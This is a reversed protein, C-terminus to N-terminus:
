QSGAFCDRRKRDALASCGLDSRAKTKDNRACRPLREEAQKGDGSLRSRWTGRSSLIGQSAIERKDTQWGRVVSIAEHRQRTMALRRLLREKPQKGARFLRSRKTGRSSLSALTAHNKTDVGGKPPQSGAFCDRRKIDALGSCGLDSRAKTKDNRAQSAIERKATQWGQFPSIAENRAIVSNGAFCDRKQSNALESFALDSREERHCFERRLLREKPQKRARFLRSRKTGRSSLSALTAHNKTDVGGKPTALRRLLREKKQRGASFLRSRKTGRSSM